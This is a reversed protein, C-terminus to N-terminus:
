EDLSGYWSAARSVPLDPEPQPEAAKPPVLAEYKRRWYAAIRYWSRRKLGKTRAAMSEAYRVRKHLRLAEPSLEGTTAFAAQVKRAKRSSCAACLPVVNPSRLVKRILHISCKGSLLKDLPIPRRSKRGYFDVPGKGGCHSCERSTRAEEFVRTCWVPRSLALKESVFRERSIAPLSPRGGPPRRGLTGCVVLHIEVVLKLAM